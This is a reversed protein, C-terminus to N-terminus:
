EYKMGKGTMIAASVANAAEIVNATALANTNAKAVILAATLVNEFNDYAIAVPKVGAISAQNRAVLEFYASVSSDTAMKVSALTNYAVRSQTVCGIIFAIAFALALNKAYKM